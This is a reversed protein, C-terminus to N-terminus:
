RAPPRSSRRSKPSRCRVDARLPFTFHELSTADVQASPVTEMVVTYQNTPMFITSVQQQNYANALAQEIGAPTTGMALARQRDIKVKVIPSRNLLNSNVSSLM